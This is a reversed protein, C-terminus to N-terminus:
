WRSDNTAMTLKKQRLVEELMNWLAVEQYSYLERDPPCFTPCGGNFYISQYDYNVIKM